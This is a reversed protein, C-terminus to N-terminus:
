TQSKCFTEHSCVSSIIGGGCITSDETRLVFVQGPAVGHQPVAFHATVDDGAHKISVPTPAMTSRFQALLPTSASLYQAFLTDHWARVLIQKVLSRPGVIVRNESLHQVYLPHPATIGLGRRQGITYRYTGEHQGLVNQHCDEIPGPRFGDAEIKNHVAYSQVFEAYAGHGKCCETLFCLDQSDPRVSVPLDLEAALKRVLAKTAKGLPFFAQELQANTLGFLFYSQDRKRDVSSKLVPIERIIEKQAYHGTAVAAAKLQTTATCLLNFKVGPNCMCCPSPTQNAGYAEVFPRVVTTEFLRCGDVTTVPIGLCKGVRRADAESADASPTDFLRLTMGIVCYGWALLLAATVASDVGGSLGVIVTTGPAPLCSPRPFWSLVENVFSM